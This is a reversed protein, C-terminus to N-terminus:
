SMAVFHSLLQSMVAALMSLTALMVLMALMSLMAAHCAHVVHIAIALMTSCACSVHQIVVRNLLPVHSLLAAYPAATMLDLLTIIHSAHHLTIVIHLVIIPSPTV